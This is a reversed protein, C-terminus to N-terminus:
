TLIMCSLNWGSDQHLVKQLTNVEELPNAGSNARGSYSLSEQQIGERLWKQLLLGGGKVKKKLLEQFKRQWTSDYARFVSLNTGREMDGVSAPDRGAALKSIENNWRCDDIASKM